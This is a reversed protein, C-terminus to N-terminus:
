IDPNAQPLLTLHFDITESGGLPSPTSALFTTDDGPIKTVAFKVVMHPKDPTQEPEGPLPDPYYPVAEDLLVL